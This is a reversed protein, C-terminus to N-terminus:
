WRPPLAKLLVIEGRNASLYGGQQLDNLQRTIMERSCGVRNALELHTLKEAVRRTGDAQAEALGDLLLKLRGYVDNLAMSKASITAMRARRIVKALLEFAFSPQEHLHLELTRRTIMVCITPELAMVSASRPEGDLGMEGVYEGPGYTGYTIERDNAMHSGYSRLRGELIIYLTDGIDGEQIIVAGKAFRCPEGRRALARVSDTLPASEVYDRPPTRSRAM